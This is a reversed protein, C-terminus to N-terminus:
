LQEMDRIVGEEDFRDKYTIGAHNYKAVFPAMKNIDIVDFIKCFSGKSRDLIGEAAAIARAMSQEACYEQSYVSANDLLLSYAKLLWDTRGIFIHDGPHWHHEWWKKFFINGCVIKDDSCMAILPALNLYREDSRTRIVYPTYVLELGSKVSLFQLDATEQKYLKVEPRGVSLTIVDGLSYKSLISTDDNDWYCIVVQAISKYYELADLSTTNLPGQILITLNSDM